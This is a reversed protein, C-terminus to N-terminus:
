SLEIMIKHEVDEQKKGNQEEKVRETKDKKKSNREEEKCFLL